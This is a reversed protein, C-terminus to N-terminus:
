LATAPKDIIEITQNFKINEIQDLYAKSYFANQDLGYLLIENEPKYLELEGDSNEGLGKLSVKYYPINDSNPDNETASPLLCICRNFTGTEFGDMLATKEEENIGIIFKAPIKNSRSKLM